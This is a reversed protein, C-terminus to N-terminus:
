SEAAHSRRGQLWSFGGVVAFGLAVGLTILLLQSPGSSPTPLPTPPPATPEFEFGYSEEIRDGDAAVIAYDVWHRGPISLPEALVISVRNTFPQSVEGSMPEGAPDRLVIGPGSVDGGFELDIRDVTGGVRANPEPSADVLATHAAAASALVIVIALFAAM